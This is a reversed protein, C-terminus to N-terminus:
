RMYPNYKKEDRLTSSPGHGPLILTHLCLTSMNGNLGASYGTRQNVM